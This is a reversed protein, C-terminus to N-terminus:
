RQGLGLLFAATTLWAQMPLPDSFFLCFLPTRYPQADTRSAVFGIVLAVGAFPLIPRM